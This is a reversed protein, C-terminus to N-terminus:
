KRPWTRFMEGLSDYVRHFSELMVPIFVPALVVLLILGVVINIQLGMSMLNMQPAARSLLGLAVSTIFLIGMIPIAIKLATVFMVGLAQDMSGLLGGLTTVNFTLDPIFQFSYSLARIMHLAAPASFGDIPFDVGLFLVLGILNKLTGAIPISIQAQPDLVESFSIGAQVSFIEGAIQFAAFIMSVMFGIVVGVAAQAAVAGALGFIGDQGPPLHRSTFPYLVAGVALALIMRHRYSVAEASFVPATMFLGLLRALILGYKQVSDNFIEM